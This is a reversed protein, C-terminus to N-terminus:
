NSGGGNTIKEMLAAVEQAADANDKAAALRRETEDASDKAAVAEVGSLIVLEELTLKPAPEVAFPNPTPTELSAVDVPPITTEGDALQTVEPTPAAAQTKNALAPKHTKEQAQVTVSAAIFLGAFTLM